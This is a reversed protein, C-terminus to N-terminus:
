NLGNLLVRVDGVDVAGDGNLDGAALFAGGLLMGQVHNLIRRADGIDSSGTGTVDGMIVVTIRDVEVDGAMILVTTGTAVLGNSLTGPVILYTYGLPLPGLSDLLQGGTLGTGAGIGVLTKDGNPLAGIQDDDLITDFSIDEGDVIPRVPKEDIVAVAGDADFVRVTARYANATFRVSVDVKERDTGLFPPLISNMIAAEMLAARAPGAPAFPIPIEAPIRRLAEDLIAQASNVVAVIHPGSTVGGIITGTGSMTLEFTDGVAAIDARMTAFWTHATSPTPEGLKITNFVRRIENLIGNAMDTAATAKQAPTLRFPNLEITERTITDAAAALLDDPGNYREIDINVRSDLGAETFRNTAFSVGRVVLDLWFLPGNGVHHEFSLDVVAFHEAYRENEALSALAVPRAAVAVEATSRYAAFEVDLEDGIV